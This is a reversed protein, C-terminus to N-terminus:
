VLYEKLGALLLLLDAIFFTICFVIDIKLLLDKTEKDLFNLLSALWFFVIIIIQIALLQVM